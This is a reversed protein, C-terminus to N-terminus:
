QSTLEAYEALFSISTQIGRFFNPIYFRENPSHIKDSPLGFGMLVTELGLQNQFAAVVPISGGERMYVPRRGFVHEYAAAAAVMAPVKYDTVSAPALSHISMEVSVTPPAIEQVYQRFLDAIEQPDQDPVLRM